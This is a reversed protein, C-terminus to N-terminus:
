APPVDRGRWAVPRRRLRRWASRGLVALFWLALLPTLLAAWWRVAGVRRGLLWVQAAGALWCPWGAFPAGVMSWVWAVALLLAWWPTSAAGAAISKTWGELVSRPGDPYMRFSALGRGQAVHVRGHFRRALGIDETVRSRVDPHAHGGAALYGDRRVAVVPGFAVRPRVRGGWPAALGTGAVALLNFPVSLQESARVMAHWPQVTVLWADGPEAAVTVLRDLAGAALVVDADLFVLVPAATRAVGHHLASTKGTWGAPLPPATLVRAGAAAAVAATGDTSSDDVVVLEDGPRLQPVVSALLAPLAAAENRAPVLVAAGPREAGCRLAPLRLTRWCLVWGCTWGVAFPVVDRWTM